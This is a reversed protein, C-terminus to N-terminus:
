NIKKKEDINCKFNIRNFYETIIEMAKEKDSKKVRIADHIPLTKIGNEIFLKLLGDIMIASENRQLLNSFMKYGHAKKYSDVWVMFKPFLQRVKNFEEDSKVKDFAIRFMLSKGEKEKLNLEKEIFSYLTGNQAKEIFTHDIEPNLYAAIAFQANKIDIEITEENDLTLYNFLESKLNTLNYDLRNNTENRSAYFLGNEIDFVKKTYILKLEETKRKIFDNTDEIYYKDNWEILDKNRTKALELANNKNYRYKIGDFNLYIYEATINENLTLEEKTININNIYNYVDKKFTVNELTKIINESLLDDTNIPTKVPPPCIHYLQNINSHNLLLISQNILSNNFKYGKAIGKVVDYSKGKLIIGSKILNIKVDLHQNSKLIKLFYKGSLTISQNFEGKGYVYLNFISICLELAKLRKTESSWEIQNVADKISCLISQNSKM